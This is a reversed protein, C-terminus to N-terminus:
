DFSMEREQDRAEGAAFRSTLGTAAELSPYAVEGLGEGVEGEDLGGRADDEEFAYGFECSPLLRRGPKDDALTL